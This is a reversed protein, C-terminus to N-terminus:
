GWFRGSVGAAIVLLGLVLNTTVIRRIIALRGAAVPWNEAEVEAKFQAYPRFFLFAYLIVMVWGVGHMLTVHRGAAAFGGFDVFVM